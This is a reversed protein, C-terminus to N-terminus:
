YYLHFIIFVSKLLYPDNSFTGIEQGKKGIKKM